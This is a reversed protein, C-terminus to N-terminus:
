PVDDKFSLKPPNNINLVSSLNLQLFIKEHFNVNVFLSPLITRTALIFLQEKFVLCVFVDVIFLLSTIKVLWRLM